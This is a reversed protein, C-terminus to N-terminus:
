RTTSMCTTDVPVESDCTLFSILVGNLLYNLGTLALFEQLFGDVLLAPSLNELGNTLNLLSMICHFFNLPVQKLQM